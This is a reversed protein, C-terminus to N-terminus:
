PRSRLRDRAQNICEVWERAYPETWTGNSIDDWKEGNWYWCVHYLDLVGVYLHGWRTIFVPQHIRHALDRDFYVVADASMEGAAAPTLLKFGSPRTPAIPGYVPSGWPSGRAEDPGGTYWEGLYERRYERNREDRIREREAASTTTWIFPLAPTPKM